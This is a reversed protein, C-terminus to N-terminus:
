LKIKLSVRSIIYDPLVNGRLELETSKNVHFGGFFTAGVKVGNDDTSFGDYDPNPSSFETKFLFYQFNLGAGVFYPRIKRDVNYRFDCGFQFNMIGYKTTQDGGGSKPDEGGIVNTLDNALFKMISVGPVIYINEKFNIQYEMGLVAAPKTAKEIAITGNSYSLPYDATLFGLGLELRLPKYENETQAYATINGFCVIIGIILVVLKRM